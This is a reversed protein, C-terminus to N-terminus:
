IEGFAKSCTIIFGNAKVVGRPQSGEFRTADSWEDTLTWEVLSNKRGSYLVQNRAETLVALDDEM